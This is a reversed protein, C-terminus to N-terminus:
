KMGLARRRAALAKGRHHVTDFDGAHFAADMVEPSVDQVCRVPKLTPAAAVASYTALAFALLVEVVVDAPPM